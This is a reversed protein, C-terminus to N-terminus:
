GSCKNLANLRDRIASAVVRNDELNDEASLDKWPHKLALIRWQEVSPPHYGDNKQVCKQKNRCEAIFHAYPGEALPQFVFSEPDLKQLDVIYEFPQTNVRQYHRVLSPGKQEFIFDSMRIEILEVYKNLMAVIAATQTALCRQSNSQESAIGAKAHDFPLGAVVLFLISSLSTRM